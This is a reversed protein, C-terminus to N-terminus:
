FAFNFSGKSLADKPGEGAGRAAAKMADTLTIFDSSQALSRNDSGVAIDTPQAGTARRRTGQQSLMESYAGKLAIARGLTGMGIIGVNM